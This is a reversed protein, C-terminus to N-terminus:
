DSAAGGRTSRPTEQNLYNVALGRCDPEVLDCVCVHRGGTTPVVEQHGCAANAVVCLHTAAYEHEAQAWFDLEHGCPKGAQEWLFYARRETVERRTM